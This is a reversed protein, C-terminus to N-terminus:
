VIQWFRRWSKICMGWWALLGSIELIRPMMRKQILAIFTANLSKEFKCYQFLEEFVALVDKEVVRWCHHYFAMTFGNPGPAKDGELDRVVQFIEERLSGKLGFGRWIGLVILSWARWLLVGVRKYFQVVQATVKSEEEFVVGDVELIRLHNYRRHSNEMNHFFKTKNDGEKICLM